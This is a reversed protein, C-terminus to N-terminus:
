KKSLEGEPLKIIPLELYTQKNMGSYITNYGRKLVPLVYPNTNLFQDDPQTDLNTFVVKIRDGRKFIHSYSAGNIKRNRIKGKNYHRDTYNIRTVFASDGTPTVEWIQLNFQCVDATSSYFLNLLPTGALQLDTKLPETEFEINEKRFASNFLDGDFSVNIAQRMTLTSDLINNRFGASFDNINDSETNLKREPHFYFKMSYNNKPPWVPSSFHSFSWENNIRPYHSSAFQFTNSDPVGTHNSYLWYKIWNNEWGSTFISEGGSTDSGHGDVAGIYELFPVKLRAAAKIAGEASFFRDQWANTMLVPVRCQSIKYLFDRGIPLHKALSDWASNEKLLAWNRLKVVNNDYRVISDDYDVTWFFTMKICGNEIWNSAFDPTALDPMITLVNLGSCAAMFPIIGGQSGGVIIIKSADVSTDKKVYNVVQLLDNMEIRSILNSYGGSNGQGRMSYTFTYYGYQAQDKATSLETEKSDGYGHCYIMVPWGKSPKANHPIFKTCDLNIKDWTMIKLDYRDVAQDGRPSWKALLLSSTLILMIMLKM